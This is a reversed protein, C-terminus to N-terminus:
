FAEADVARDAEESSFWSRQFNMLQPFFAVFLSPILPLLSILRLGIDVDVHEDRWPM